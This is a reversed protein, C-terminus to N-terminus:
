DVPPRRHAWPAAEAARATTRALEATMTCYANITPNLREIRALVADVVEVPSVQKTRIAAALQTAPTYCLDTAEM